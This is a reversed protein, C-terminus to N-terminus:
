HESNDLLQHLCQPGIVVIGATEQESKLSYTDLGGMPKNFDVKAAPKVLSIVKFPVM